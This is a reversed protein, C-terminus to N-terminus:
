VPILVYAWAIGKTGLPHTAEVLFGTGGGSVAAKSLSQSLDSPTQKTAIIYVGQQEAGQGSGQVLARRVNSLLRPLAHPAEEQLWDWIGAKDIVAGFRHAPPPAGSSLFDRVQFHMGPREKVPHRTRMATIVEPAVDLHESVNFGAQHLLEPLPSDGCGIQLVPGLAPDAFVKVVSNVLEPSAGFWDTDNVSNGWEWEMGPPPEHPLGADASGGGKATIGKLRWHWFDDWWEHRCQRCGRRWNEVGPSVPLLWQYFFRGTILVSVACFVGL